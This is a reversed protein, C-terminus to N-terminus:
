QQFEFAGMDPATGWFIPAMNFDLKYGLDMGADIAPSKSRLTFMGCQVNQFLPDSLIEDKSITFGPKGTPLFILNNSHIFDTGSKERNALKPYNLLYFINNRMQLIEPSPYGNLFLISAYFGEPTTDIVTNNEFRLNRVGKDRGGSLHLGLARGSNVILNYAVLNNDAFGGGIEMFGQANYSYNHHINSNSVDKYFEIAGGDTGYDFSPAKCNILKNYAVENDSNFLWVGVAGYDDDGGQTNVVMTLDHIYNNLIHNSRGHVNVGEGVLTAEINQVINNNAGEDVYVGALVAEQVKVNELTIWSGKIRVANTFKKGDGPNKFIPPNGVDGYSTFLIPNRETGSARIVFSGTWVSGRKLFVTDGPQFKTGNLLDMSAWAQDASDGSNHDNGGVSDFYFSKGGTKPTAPISPRLFGTLPIPNICATPAARKTPAVSPIVLDQVIKTPFITGTQANERVPLTNMCGSLFLLCLVFLIRILRSM